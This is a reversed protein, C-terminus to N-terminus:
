RSASQHVSNWILAGIYGLIYGVATTVLILTLSATLDFPGITVALHIMHAWLIFDFLTQGVGSLVLLSWALHAGGVVAALVVGVKHTNM